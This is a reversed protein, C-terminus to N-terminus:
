IVHRVISLIVPMANAPRSAFALGAARDRESRSALHKLYAIDLAIGVGPNMAAFWGGNAFDLFRAGVHEQIFDARRQFATIEFPLVLEDFTQEFLAETRGVDGGRQQM